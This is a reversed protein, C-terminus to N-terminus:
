LDQFSECDNGIEKFLKPTLWKMGLFHQEIRNGGGAVLLFNILCM